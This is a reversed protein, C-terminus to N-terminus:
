NIEKSTTTKKLKLLIETQSNKLEKLDATWMWQLISLLCPIASYSFTFDHM